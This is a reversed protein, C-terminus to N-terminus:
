YVESRYDEVSILKRASFLWREYGNGWEQNLLNKRIANQSEQYHDEDVEDKEQVQLILVANLTEIIGSTEGTGMALLTGTLTNNRGIGSFSGGIKQTEKTIYQIMPNNISITEWDEGDILTQSLLNKAYEKKNERVLTRRISERM